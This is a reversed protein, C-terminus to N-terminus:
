LFACTNNGRYYVYLVTPNGYNSRQIYCSRRGYGVLNFQLTIGRDLKWWWNWLTYANTGQNSVRQLYNTSPWCGWTDNQNRGCIQLDTFYVYGSGAIYQTTRFSVQSSNGGARAPQPTTATISGLLVILVIFIKAAQLTRHHSHIQM